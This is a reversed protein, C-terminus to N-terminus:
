KVLGVMKLALKERLEPKEELFIRLTHPADPVVIFDRKKCNISHEKFLHNVHAPIIDDKEGIIHLFNGKYNKLNDFIQGYGNSLLHLYREDYSAELAQADYAAPCILILNEVNLHPLLSITTHGGLSTGILTIPKKDDLFKSAALAQRCLERLTVNPNGSSDGHGSYDFRLCSYGHRALTSTWYVPSQRNGPRSGNLALITPKDSNGNYDITAALNHGDCKFSFDESIM